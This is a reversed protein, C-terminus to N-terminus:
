TVVSESFRNGCENYTCFTITKRFFTLPRSGIISFYGVGFLHESGQKSEKVLVHALSNLFLSNRVTYKVKLRAKLVNVDLM